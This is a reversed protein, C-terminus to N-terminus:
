RWWGNKIALTPLSTPGPILLEVLALRGGPKLLCKANELVRNADGANSLLNCGIIIDFSKTQIDQDALDADLNLSKIQPIVKSGALFGRAKTLDVASTAAYTYRVTVPLTKISLLSCNQFACSGYGIELISLRPDSHAALDVLKLMTM